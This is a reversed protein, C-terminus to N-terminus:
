AVLLGVMGDFWVLMRSLWILIMLRERPRLLLHEMRREVMSLMGMVIM